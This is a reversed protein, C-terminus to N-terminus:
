RACRRHHQQASGRRQRVVHHPHLWAARSHLGSEGLWTGSAVLCPSDSRCELAGSCCSDTSVDRCRGSICTGGTRPCMCSAKVQAPGKFKRRKKAVHGGNALMPDRQSLSLLLEGGQRAALKFQPHCHWVKLLHAADAACTILYCPLFVGTLPARLLARRVASQATSDLHSWVAAILKACPVQPHLDKKRQGTLFVHQVVDSLLGPVESRLATACLATCLHLCVHGQQSQAHRAASYMHSVALHQARRMASQARDTDGQAAALVALQLLSDAQQLQQWITSISPLFVNASPHAVLLVFRQTYTRCFVLQLTPLCFRLASGPQVCAKLVCRAVKCSIRHVCDPYRADRVCASLCASM